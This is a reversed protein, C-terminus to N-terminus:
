VRTIGEISLIENVRKNLKKEASDKNFSFCVSNKVRYIDTKRKFFQANFGRQSKFRKLLVTWPLCDRKRARLLRVFFPAEVIIVADLMELASSRHLLAANIVCANERRANIWALTERNAVPHIIEELAQLEEPRGFVKSGLRKRDISVSVSVSGDQSLIDNGFRELLREKETEIAAHGLKDVDLVPISRRELISAVHNKGACYSGTLGIVKKSNM